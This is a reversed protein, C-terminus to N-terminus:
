PQPILIPLTDRDWRSAVDMSIVKQTDRRRCSQSIRKDMLGLTNRWYGCSRQQM